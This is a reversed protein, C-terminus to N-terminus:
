RDPESEGLQCGDRAGHEGRDDSVAALPVGDPQLPVCGQATTEDRCVREVCRAWLEGSLRARSSPM